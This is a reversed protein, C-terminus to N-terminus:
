SCGLTNGCNLCKYCVGNRVTTHGCLNCFPADGMMKGLHESLASAEHHGTVNVINVQVPAASAVPAQAPSEAGTAAAVASESKKIFDTLRRHRTEGDAPKVQAFEDQGLYELALVRFLYDVISTCMKINPHDVPGQPEFRSFTFVDIFEKLPVGYQLGLSVAIAFCNMMSRFAAGEKALDVFIEGLTGDEYEGTRLYVKQGAIRAEQTFGSRKRPLRFRKLSQSAATPSVPNAVTTPLLQGQVLGPPKVQIKALIEAVRKQIEDEVNVEAKKKEAAKSSLPQSAKCGDRYLAVAKLGLKWSQWYAEKIDDVTTEAPMNITKSIAGSIFPQTAGMMKIHGMWHIFRQGIKGCKNACDFIPLHEEKLHPAGEVTMRGCLVDNSQEVEADTFGLKALLDDEATFGLRKLCAEGVNFSNFAHRLEFVKPLQAEVRAIEEATLGREALARDNVPSASKLTNSGVVYAVIERAQDPTYGLRRLAEPVSENVIKFYGGGALKKFKVLAFDPEVGTTDCDMLLGITGTPALVTAQANRYGHVEGQAVADDWDERAAKLLNQPCDESRIAYAATRHMRIVKLFPERNKEYGPFPGKSRAIEASQRYASGTLIATLAGAIGRGRDSDYPIGLLMLLTGLNAYGLGLPRYDHSNQAIQKNPYSAFEVAIEQASTFIEAAHRYRAVDFMGEPSLFKTLNLSALNCATDDLFMYESCNHVVIGNAVFHQTRPETLDYVDQTGLLTLSEVEDELRDAYSEVVRNLEVLRHQKDSGPWFGIEKEFIMRSSRSIRLSHSQLVPYEKQGGKGDPLLTSTQTLARRNEYIKAKIGFNLLLIQAQRLLELSTSDLSVYHSKEGYHAVTGDSTFLGRLLAAVSPRDLQFVRDKLTKKPSGSDLVAWRVIADVVENATTALRVTSGAETVSVPRNPKLSNVLACVRELIPREKPSMSITLIGGSVCGDGVALGVAEALEASLREHGFPSPLLEVIDDRTLDIAPIDGRNLTRVRHDATLKLTYGSATRLLYVPKSGTRFASSIPAPRGDGAIIEHSPGTLSDIRVLGALTAVLTDGTVCPNSAHIKDTNPCTHWQNITTDYQVGPDACKWAAVAIKEWLDRAKLTKATKGSNRYKTDYTADAEVAKMFEDTVRVSNNSNQGSVTHYAEGNFDSPLGGHEILVRAKDEERMKWDIFREIDPHDMDLCVMKAARRTTGGSKIAGASKDYIELFSMLGSSTGGSSLKEGEARIKSFNTGTGSGFKFIRMERKVLDAMDMLDDSVSQIFCASLQPRSYSDVTEEVKDTLKNWQWNGVPPGKIGYEQALGCNFWVPSNFAGIQNILMHTLEAEFTDADEVDSFYGGFDEGARRISRAIRTVTQKASVENGTGPVGAKRFYKSAIIDTALQTWSRPIELNELKFVTSGDPNTIKSTRKDWEIRDYPDVGPTTYVRKFKLGKGRAPLRRTKRRLDTASGTEVASAAVTKGFM